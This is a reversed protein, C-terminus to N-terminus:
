SWKWGFVFYIWREDKTGWKDISIINEDKHELSKYFSYRIEIATYKVSVWLRVIYWVIPELGYYIYQLWKKYVTEITSDAEKREEDIEAVLTVIYTGLEIWNSVKFVQNVYDPEEKLRNIIVESITELCEHGGKGNSRLVYEDGDQNEGYRKCRNLNFHYESGYFEGVLADFEQLESSSLYSGIKGRIEDCDFEINNYDNIMVGKQQPTFPIMVINFSAINIKEELESKIKPYFSKVEEIYKTKLM